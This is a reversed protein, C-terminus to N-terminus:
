KNEHGIELDLEAESHEDTQEWYRAEVMDAKLRKIREFIYFISRKKKKYKRNFLDVIKRYSEGDAYWGFLIKDTKIRFRHHELHIRCRRYHEETAECYVRKITSAHRKLYRSDQLGAKDCEIDDFGSQKLRTYWQNQLKRFETGKYHLPKMPKNDSM